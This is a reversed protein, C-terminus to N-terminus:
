GTNWGMTGLLHRKSSVASGAIAAEAVSGATLLGTPCRGNSASAACMALGPVLSSFLVALPLLEQMSM